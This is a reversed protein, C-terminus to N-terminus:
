VFDLHGVACNLYELIMQNKGNAVCHHVCDRGPRLRFFCEKGHMWFDKFSQATLSGLLAADNYAKDQCPYIGLNAGIVALVQSFPCWDYDKAFREALTHWADVIEFSNDALDAKAKKIAERVREFHPAHYANNAAPKDSVICASVKVSHIGAEKLRRLSEEVRAANDADVILSVGLVCSGGRAAFAEMNRM